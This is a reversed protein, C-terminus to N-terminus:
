WCRNIFLTERVFYVFDLLEAAGRDRWFCLGVLCAIGDTYLGAMFWCGVMVLWLWGIANLTSM